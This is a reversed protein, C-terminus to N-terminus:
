NKCIKKELVPNKKKFDDIEDYLERLGDRVDLVRNEDVDLSVYGIEEKFRKIHDRLYDRYIFSDMNEELERIWAVFSDTDGEDKLYADTISLVEEESIEESSLVGYMEYYADKVWLSLRSTDYVCDDIEVWSHETGDIVTMKGEVRKAGPIVLAMFSACLHCYTDTKRPDLLLFSLPRGSFRLKYMGEITEEDYIGYHVGFEFKDEMVGGLVAMIIYGYVM